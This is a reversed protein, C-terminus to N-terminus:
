GKRAKKALLSRTCESVVTSTEFKEALPYILHASPKIDLSAPSKGWHYKVERWPGAEPLPDILGEKLCSESPQPFSPLPSAALSAIAGWDSVPRDESSGPLGDQLRLKIGPSTSSSVRGQDLGPEGMAGGPGGTGECHARGVGVRRAARLEAKWSFFFTETPDSLCGPSSDLSSIGLHALEPAPFHCLSPCSHAQLYCIWEGEGGQSGLAQSTLPLIM